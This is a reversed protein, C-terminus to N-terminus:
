IFRYVETSRENFFETAEFSTPRNHGTFRFTDELLSLYCILNRIIKQHFSAELGTVVLLHGGLAPNVDAVPQSEMPWSKDRQLHHRM